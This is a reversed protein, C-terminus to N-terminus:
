RADRYAHHWDSSFVWEPDHRDKLALFDGFQPYCRMLQENTAFRNYTLFYSGDREAALDILCRLDDGVRAIGPETHEFHLNFM